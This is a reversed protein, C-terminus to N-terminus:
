NGPELKSTEDKWIDAMVVGVTYMYHWIVKESTKSSMELKLVTGFKISYTTENQLYLIM